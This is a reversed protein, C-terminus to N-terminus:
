QLTLLQLGIMMMMMEGEALRCQEGGGEARDPCSSPGTCNHRHAVRRHWYYCYGGILSNQMGAQLKVRMEAYMSQVNTQIEEM